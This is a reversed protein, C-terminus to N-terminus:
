HRALNLARPELKRIGGTGPIIDGSKPFFALQVRLDDLEKPTLLADADVSFAPMELITVALAATKQIILSICIGWHLIDIL